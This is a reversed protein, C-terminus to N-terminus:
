MGKKLKLVVTGIMFPKNFQRRNGYKSFHFTVFNLQVFHMM